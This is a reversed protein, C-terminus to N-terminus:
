VTVWVYVVQDRKWNMNSLSRGEREAGRGRRGNGRERERAFLIHDIQDGHEVFNHLRSSPPPRSRARARVRQTRRGFYIGLRGVSRDRAKNFSRSPIPQLSPPPLHPHISPSPSPPKGAPSPPTPLWKTSVPCQRSHKSLIIHDYFALAFPLVTDLSHANENRLM